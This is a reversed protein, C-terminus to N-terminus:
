ASKHDSTVTRTFHIHVVHVVTHFRHEDSAMHLGDVVYREDIEHVLTQIASANPKAVSRVYPSKM